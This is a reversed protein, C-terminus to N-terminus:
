VDLLPSGLRELFSLFKEVVKKNDYFPSELDLFLEAWFQVSDPM